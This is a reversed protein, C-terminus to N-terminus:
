STHLVLTRMNDDHEKLECQRNTLQIAAHRRVKADEYPNDAIETLQEILKVLVRRQARLITYDLM